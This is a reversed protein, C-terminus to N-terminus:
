GRSSSIVSSSLGGTARTATRPRQECSPRRWVSRLARRPARSPRFGTSSRARRGGALVLLLLCILLGFFLSILLLSSGSLLFRSVLSRHYPACCRRRRRWTRRPRAAPGQSRFTSTSRRCRDRQPATASSTSAPWSTASRERLDVRAGGGFSGGRVVRRDSRRDHPAASADFARSRLGVTFVRVRQEKAAAVVEDLSLM